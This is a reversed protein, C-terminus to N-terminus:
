SDSLPPQYLGAEVCGLMGAAYSREDVPTLEASMAASILPTRRITDLRGAIAELPEDSTMWGHKKDFIELNLPATYGRLTKERRINYYPEFYSLALERLNRHIAERFRLGVFNSKAIAGWHEGQKYLAVVHSDDRVALLEMILPPHGLRRLAAAAFLAGDFCHARRDRLVRRPCRYIEETSYPLEDLYAQIKSPSDLRAFVQLEQPDFTNKHRQEINM